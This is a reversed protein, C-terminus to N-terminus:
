ATLIGDLVLKDRWADAILQRGAVNEHINDGSNYEAKLNGNGDDLLPVHSDIRGDANNITTMIADNLEVWRQQSAAGNTAGYIDIFRQKCPLMKSVYIKCRINTTSRVLDVLKQYNSLVTETTQSDSMDNLGIQIVVVDFDQKNNLANFKSTQGLVTDGGQATSTIPTFNAVYSPVVAGGYGAAITSDGISLINVTNKPYYSAGNSNYIVNGKYIINALEFGRYFLRSQILDNGKNILKM